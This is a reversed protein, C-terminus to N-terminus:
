YIVFREQPISLDGPKAPNADLPLGALAIQSKSSKIDGWFRSPKLEKLGKVAIADKLIGKTKRLKWLEESDEDLRTGPEYKFIRAFHFSLVKRGAETM